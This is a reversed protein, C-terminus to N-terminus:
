LGAGLRLFLWDEGNEKFWICTQKDKRTRFRYRTTPNRAAHASM